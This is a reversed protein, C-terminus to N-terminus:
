APRLEGSSRRGKAIMKAGRRRRIREGLPMAALHDVYQAFHGAKEMERVIESALGLPIGPAIITRPGSDTAFRLLLDMRADPTTRRDLDNLPAEEGAEAAGWAMIKYCFDTIEQGMFRAGLRFGESRELLFCAMNAFTRDRLHATLAFYLWSSDLIALEWKQFNLEMQTAPV